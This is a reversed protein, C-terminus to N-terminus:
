SIQPKTSFTLIEKCKFYKFCHKEFMAGPIYMVFSQQWSLMTLGNVTTMVIACHTVNQKKQLSCKQINDSEENAYHLSM